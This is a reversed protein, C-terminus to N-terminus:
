QQGRGTVKGLRELFLEAKEFGILTLDERWRGDADIFVVWPLGVIKFRKRYRELEESDKTADFRFREFAALAEQVKPDPFTLGELEKCAACWDAWFDIVVPRRLAKAEDLGKETLAQWPLLSRPDPGITCVDPSGAPDVGAPGCESLGPEGSKRLAGLLGSVGAPGGPPRVDLAGSGMLLVGFLVMALCLGRLARTWRTLPKQFSLGLFIGLAVFGLGLLVEFWRAPMLLSLYYYFVGLMLVGFFKKVGELWPGSRPLKKTLNTSIGIVLFLQGMGLAFVFLLWFGLWLNQTQAVYTLIAVLVPGVCPSAVLGSVAGTLFAGVPGGYHTFRDLAKQVAPPAELDFVGLMSLAMLFFVLCVTGLVWPSNMFSGFLAGTSAAVLGLLAYTVAIGLVYAHSLVVSQWKTRAHSDRGLVALTIPIMPFVCPTFSTLIGALFVFAFTWLLGKEFVEAFSQSLFGKEAMGTAPLGQAEKLAPATASVFGIEVTRNIPFLCYTKTCAQYTLTLRILGEAPVQAPAEIPAKLTAEGIMGRRRRKSFDDYFEHIPSIHFQSLKFTVPSELELHFQDEYAKYNDPLTLRLEVEAVQHPDLSRPKLAAQIQLPDESVQDLSRALAPSEALSLVVGCWLFVFLIRFAKAM